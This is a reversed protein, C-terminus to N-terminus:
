GDKAEPDGRVRVKETMRAVWADLEVEDLGRSSLYRRGLGKSKDPEKMLTRKAIGFNLGTNRGAEGAPVLVPNAFTTSSTLFPLGALVAGV